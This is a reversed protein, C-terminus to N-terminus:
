IQELRSSCIILSYCDTHFKPRNRSCFLSGGKPIQIYAIMIHECINTKLVVVERRLVFANELIKLAPSKIHMNNGALWYQTFYLKHPSFVSSSLSCIVTREINLMYVVVNWELYLKRPRLTHPSHFPYAPVSM